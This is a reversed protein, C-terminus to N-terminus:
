SVPGTTGGSDGPHTHTSGINKSNNTVSGNIVVNGTITASAGSGGSGAMGAQYTLLGQTTLTGTNTTSPTSIMTGGPATIICQGGATLRISVTGFYIVMDDNNVGQSQQANDVMVAYADSIDFRRMDDTGDSAQQAFVIM